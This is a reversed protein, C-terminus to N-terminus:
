KDGGRGSFKVGNNIVFGSPDVYIEGFGCLEDNVTVTRPGNVYVNHATLWAAIATAVEAGTLEIIVGPGYETRGEGYKVIM